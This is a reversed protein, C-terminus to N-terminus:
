HLGLRGPSTRYSWRSREKRESSGRSWRRHIVKMFAEARIWM